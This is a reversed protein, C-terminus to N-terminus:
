SRRCYLLQRSRRRDYVAATAMGSMRCLGFKWLLVTVAVIHRRAGNSEPKKLWAQWVTEGIEPTKDREPM